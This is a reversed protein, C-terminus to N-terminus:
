PSETSERRAVMSREWAKVLRGSNENLVACLEKVFPKARHEFMFTRGEGDVISASDGHDLVSFPPALCPDDLWGHDGVSAVFDIRKILGNTTM